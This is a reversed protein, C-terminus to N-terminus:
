FIEDYCGIKRIFEDLLKPACFFRAINQYQVPPMHPWHNVRGDTLWRQAEVGLEPGTGNEVWKAARLIQVGPYFLICDDKLNNEALM